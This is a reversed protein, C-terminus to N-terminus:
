TGANRRKRSVGTLLPPTSPLRRFKPSRWLKNTKCADGRELIGPWARWQSRVNNSLRIVLGYHQSYRKLSECRHRPMSRAVWWCGVVLASDDHFWMSAGQNKNEPYQAENEAANEGSNGSPDHPVTVQFFHVGAQHIWTSARCGVGTSDEADDGDGQSDHAEND